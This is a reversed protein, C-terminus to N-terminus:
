LASILIWEHIFFTKSNWTSFIAVILAKMINSSLQFLSGNKDLSWVLIQYFYSWDRQWMCTLNLLLKFTFVLWELPVCMTYFQLAFIALMKVRSTLFVQPINIKLSWVSFLCGLFYKKIIKMQWFVRFQLICTFSCYSCSKLRERCSGTRPASVQWQLTM